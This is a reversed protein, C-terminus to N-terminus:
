ELVQDARGLISPPIVIGLAKATKLNVVLEFKTPQEVPLDGPNAGRLVRDVYRAANRWIDLFDPAYSALGGAETIGRADWIAPRKLAAALAVVSARESFIMEHELNMLADPNQRRVVDPAARLEDPSGVLVYNLGVSLDRAARDLDARVSSWFPQSRRNIDTHAIVSVRGAKPVIEKLLQLRKVILDPGGNSIGTVNGGPRRMNTVRGIGVPDTVLLFVVPVSTTAEVAAGLGQSWTLILDVKRAVLEAAGQELKRRDGM